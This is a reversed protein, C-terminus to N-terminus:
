NSTTNGVGWAYNPSRHFETWEIPPSTWNTYTPSLQFITGDITLQSGKVALEKIFPHPDSFTEIIPGWFGCVQGLSCNAQAGEYQHSYILDFSGAPDCWNRFYVANQWTSTGALLLTDNRYRIFDHSHGGGDDTFNLYCSMEPSSIAAVFVYAPETQGGSCPYSPSCSWDYVDIDAIGCHYAALVEVGKETRNSATHFIFDSPCGIGSGYATITAMLSAGNNTADLQGIKYTTGAGIGGPVPM